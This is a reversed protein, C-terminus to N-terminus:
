EIDILFSKIETGISQVLIDKHFSFNFYGPKYDEILNKTAESISIRGAIGNSEIQNAILVDKGYIDYRVINTGAIGGIINGTHIGIRMNMSSNNQANIRDIIEVMSYAFNIMNLCEEGPNRVEDSRYGMAVYCDGITHVKYVHCEVCRKDFKSFLEYLMGVVKEPRKESSWATFGVIDAYILTVKPLSDTTTTENKLNKYVHAPMMQTLLSETKKLEEDAYAQLAFFTRANKDRFYSNFIMVLTFLLIALIMEYDNNIPQVLIAAVSFIM